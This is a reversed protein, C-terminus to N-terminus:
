SLKGLVRDLIRNIRGVRQQNDPDGVQFNLVSGLFQEIDIRVGRDTIVEDMIIGRLTLCLGLVYNTQCKYMHFKETASILTRVDVSPTENSYDDKRIQIEKRYYQPM